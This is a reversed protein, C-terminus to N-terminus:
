NIKRLEFKEPNKQFEKLGAEDTEIFEVPPNEGGYEEVMINDGTTVSLKGSKHKFIKFHPIM